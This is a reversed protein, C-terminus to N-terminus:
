AIRQYKRLYLLGFSLIGYLVIVVGLSVPPLQVVVFPVDAFLEVIKLEYWLLGYSVWAFPYSLTTSIFGSVGTLFGFLMTVPVFLLILLNVPLSVLSVEGTMYILLPLVFLQTSITASAIYRLQFQEPIFGLYKEVYPALHILGITAIFSLQFSPDYLLIHPNHFVMLLAAILLARTIAYTRGTARAILVLIAMISARVITASAGTMLAFLVIAFSGIGIGYSIPLFYLARMIAEAVITVNYGSLVVIHIIGTKRFDDQLESGLSQKAGAVLGGLLSVEPDPIVREVKELFARKLEFANRKIFSGGGNEIVGVQAFSIQYLIDDKSLYSVYDFVRGTDTEFNEPKTVRGSVSLTDGYSVIPFLDTTVLVKTTDSKVILRQHSERIDPEEVVVGEVEVREGIQIEFTPSLESEAIEVRAVGVAAAVLFVTVLVTKRNRTVLFTFSLSSALVGLFLALFIGGSTTEEVIVGFLFGAFASNFIM